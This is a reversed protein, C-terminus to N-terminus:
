YQKIGKVFMKELLIYKYIYLLVYKLMQELKLILNKWLM